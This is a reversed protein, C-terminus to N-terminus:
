SQSEEFTPCGVVVQRDSISSQVGIHRIIARACCYLPIGRRTCYEAIAVDVSVFETTLSEILFRFLDFQLEPPVFTGMSGSYVDIPYPVVAGGQPWVQDSTLSLLFHGSPRVRYCEQVAIALRAAFDRAVLVDDELITNAHLVANAYNAVSDVHSGHNKRVADPLCLVCEFVDAPLYAWDQNGVFAGLPESIDSAAISELMQPLYLVPRKITVIGIM